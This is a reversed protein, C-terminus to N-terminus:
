GALSFAESKSQWRAIVRANKEGKASTLPGMRPNAIKILTPSTGHALGWFRRETEPVDTGAHKDVLGIAVSDFPLKSGDIHLSRIAVAFIRPKDRQSHRAHQRTKRIAGIGLRDVLETKFLDFQVALALGFRNRVIAIRPHIRGVDQACSQGIGKRFRTKARGDAAGFTAALDLAQRSMDERAVVAIRIQFAGGLDSDGITALRLGSGAKEIKM